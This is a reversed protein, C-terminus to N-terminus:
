LSIGNAKQTVKVVIIAIVAIALAVLLATVVVTETTYGREDARLDDIRTRFYAAILQIWASMDIV